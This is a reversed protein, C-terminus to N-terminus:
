VTAGSLHPTSFPPRPLNDRMQEFSHALQGPAPTLVPHPFGAAHGPMGSSPHSGPLGPPGPRRGGYVDNEDISRKM